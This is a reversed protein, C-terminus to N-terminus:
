RAITAAIRVDDLREFKIWATRGATPWSPSPFPHQPGDLALEFRRQEYGRRSVPLLEFVNHGIMDCRGTIVSAEDSWEVISGNKNVVAIGRLVRASAASARNHFHMWILLGVMMVLAAWLM